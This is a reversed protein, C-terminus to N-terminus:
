TNPGLAELKELCARCDMADVSGMVIADYTDGCLAVARRGEDAAADVDELFFHWRGGRRNVLWRSM